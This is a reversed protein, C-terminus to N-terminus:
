WNISMRFIGVNQRVHVISSHVNRYLDTLPCASAKNIKILHLLHHSFPPTLSPAWMEPKSFQISSSVIWQFPSSWIFAAKIPFIVKARPLHRHSLLPYAEYAPLCVPRSNAEEFHRNLPGSKSCGSEHKLSIERHSQRKVIYIQGFFFNM